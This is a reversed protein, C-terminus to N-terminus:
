ARVDPKLRHSKPRGSRRGYAAECLFRSVLIPRPAIKPFGARFYPAQRRSRDSGRVSQMGGRQAALGSTPMFAPREGWPGARAAPPPFVLKAFGRGVRALPLDPRPRNGLGEARQAASRAPRALARLGESSGAGQEEPATSRRRRRFALDAPPCTTPCDPPRTGGSLGLASTIQQLIRRPCLSNCGWHLNQRHRVRCPRVGEPWANGPSPESPQFRTRKKSQPRADAGPPFSFVSSSRLRGGHVWDLMGDRPGAGLAAAACPGSSTSESSQHGTLTEGAVQAPAPEVGRGATGLFLLLQPDPPGDGGDNVPFGPLRPRPPRYGGGLPGPGVDLEVAM